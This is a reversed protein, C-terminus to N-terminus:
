LFPSYLFARLLDSGDLDPWDLGACDLPVVLSVLKFEGLGVLEDLSVWHRSGRSLDIM